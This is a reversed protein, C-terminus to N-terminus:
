PELILDIYLAATWGYNRSGLGDGTLPDYYEYLVPTRAVLDLTKERLAAAAAKQGCRQLGRMAIWNLNVWTPGRWYGQASFRPDGLAVSPMPWKAAFMKPDSLYKTATIAQKDTAVGAWMPWFIAPTITDSISKDASVDNYIGMKESWHLKRITDRLEKAKADWQRAEDKKGLTRAM